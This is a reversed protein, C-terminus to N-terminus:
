SRLSAIPRAMSIMASSCPDNFASAPPSIAGSGRPPDSAVLAPAPAGEGVDPTIKKVIWVFLMFLLFGPVLLLTGILGHAGGHSYDPNWLTIAGLAAVRVINMFIAVPVSILVVSIRQWWQRCMFAAVAVSLAIFAVVMRMGSCAEAINLPHSVGAAADFVHLSNGTISVDIGLLM